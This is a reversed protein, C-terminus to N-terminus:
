HRVFSFVRELASLVLVAACVQGIFAFEGLGALDFLEPTFWVSLGAALFAGLILAVPRWMM